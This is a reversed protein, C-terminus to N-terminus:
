VHHQSGKDVCLGDAQASRLRWGLDRQLDILLVDAEWDSDSLQTNGYGGSKRPGTVVPKLSKSGGFAVLQNRCAKQIHETKAETQM